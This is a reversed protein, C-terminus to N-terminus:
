WTSGLYGHKTFIFAKKLHSDALDIWSHMFLMHGILAQYELFFVHIGFIYFIQNSSTLHPESM